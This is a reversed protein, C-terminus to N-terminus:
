FGVGDDLGTTLNWRSTDGTEFSDWFYPFCPGDLPDRYGHSAPSGTSRYGRVEFGDTLGDCDTDVNTPNTGLLREWGDILLDSDADTNLYAFGAGAFVNQVSHYGAEEYTTREPEAVLAWDDKASNYLRYLAVTGPPRCTLYPECWPYIWGVLGDSEYGAGQELTVNRFYDIETNSVAYAFRRHSLPPLATGRCLAAKNPDYRLRHLPTLVPAGPFPSHTSTFLYVSARAPNPPCPGVTCAGPLSYGAVDPGDSDFPDENDFTLASAEQPAPTYFHVENAVSRLSFLPTLRNAIPRNNITGLARRVAPEAQPVGYGLTNTRNSAQTATSTLIDAIEFHTLLPSVSRLIGALGVVLPTAMSTGTCIGLGDGPIGPMDPRDGCVLIPNHNWNTYLTSLVSKAPAVLDLSSGYNAGCETGDPLPCSVESWLEYYPPVLTRQVGGVAIVTPESAPFEVETRDNGSSAAVVLQRESVYRLLQCMLLVPQAQCDPAEARSVGFSFSLAQVGQGVLAVAAQGAANIQATGTTQNEFAKAVQLSCNWCSGAVGASNNTRAGILGAVHTGHGAWFDGNDTEDLLCKGAAGTGPPPVVSFSRQTRLNGGLWRWPGTPSIKLYDLLEPHDIQVGQDVIGIQAHGTAWEWAAPFGMLHLAWQSFNPDGLLTGLFPDSPTVAATSLEFRINPEVSQLQGGAQLTSMVAATNTPPPYEVVIYRHLMALASAPNSLIWQLSRGIPREPIALRAGVPGGAELGYPLASGNNILNVVTPPDASPPLLVILESPGVEARLAPALFPVFLLLLCARCVLKSM